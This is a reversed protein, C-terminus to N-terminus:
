LHTLKKFNEESYNINLHENTNSNNSNSLISDKYRQKLENLDVIYEKPIFGIRNDSCTAVLYYKDDYDRIVKVTQGKKVQFKILKENFNKSETEYDFLVTLIKTKKKILLNENNNTTTTTTSTINTSSSNDLTSISSGCGSDLILNAYDYDTSSSSSSSSTTSSSSSFCHKLQKSNTTTETIENLDNVLQNNIIKLKLENNHDNRKLDIFQKNTTMFSFYKRSKLLINSASSSENLDNLLLISDSRKNLLSLPVSKIDIPLRSRAKLHSLEEFTTILRNTQQQQMKIDSINNLQESSEQQQGSSNESIIFSLKRTM